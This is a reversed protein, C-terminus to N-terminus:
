RLITVTGQYQRRGDELDITYLYPGPPLEKGNFTGNWACNSDQCEYVKRGGNDFVFIRISEYAILNNFDWTDNIGDGNPTFAQVVAIDPLVRIITLSRQVTNSTTSADSVKISIKRSLKDTVGLFLSRYKVNRLATEYASKSAEGSLTLEGTQKNFSGTIASTEGAPKTYALEDTAAEFSESITVVAGLLNADDVDVITLQTSIASGQDGQSYTIPTTELNRIEPVDNTTSITISVQASNESYLLGDSVNWSFNDPGFYDLPPTYTLQDFASWSIEQNLSIALGNFRLVGQPLQTIKIATVGDGNPDTILPEFFTKPFEIAIDEITEATSATLVPPRNVILNFEQIDFTGAPDSVRIRVLADTSNSPATGSVLAQRNNITSINLWAPADLFQFSLNDSVDPDTAVVTYSYASGFNVRATPTSTIFPPDNVPNVIVTLTKDVFNKSLKGNDQVKITVTTTGNTNLLPQIHVTATTQPSQYDVISQVIGTPNSTTAISIVQGVEGGDTIGTLQFDTIGSDENIMIQSAQLVVTPPSNEYLVRIMFSQETFLGTNDTARIIVPFDINGNEFYVHSLNPSGTLVFGGTGNSTATLWTPLTPATYTIPGGNFDSTTATYTYVTNERATTVATSTFQPPFQGELVTINFFQDARGGKDDVVKIALGSVGINAERPTGTLTATGNGHNTLTLWPPLAIISSITLVDSLDVDSATILYTYLVDQAAVTIPTSTFVPIDQVNNVTVPLTVEVFLGQADTVRVQISGSGYKDHAPVVNLNFGTVSTEQFLTENTVSIIEYLLAAESQELDDVLTSLNLQQGGSDEAMTISPTSLLVPAGNLVYTASANGEYNQENITATIAYTGKVSPVTASGNYLVVVTLGIPNTEVTVPKPAGDVNQLLNTIQVTAAAKNVTLTASGYNFSYNIDDGGSITIPYAGANSNIDALTTAFPAVDLDSVDEGNKFGTFDLPFAPNAQLYIRSANSVTVTLIAKAITLHATNYQFDYNDDSGGSLSITYLGVDSTITAPTSATPLTNLDDENDGNLFGAYLWTFEPDASGYTRGKDEATVTLIAKTVQLQSAVLILTYNNDSGGTLTIPYSGVPSSTTATTSISPQVNIDSADDGNVFGDYDFTLQPNVEFYVKSKPFASVTLDAKDITLTGNTYSLVYNDDSGGGVLITYIGADSTSTAATTVNPQTDLDDKDDGNAFGIYNVNLPPLTGGYTFSVNNAQVLLAAQTVTLQGPQYNFDYLDDDGDQVTIAYTGVSSIESAVSSAVPQVDIEAADDGNLFGTISFTFTPNSQGYARSNDDAEVLLTAKGVTLTFSQLEELFPSGSEQVKLEIFFSGVELPFGNLLATGDAQDILSLGIPLTGSALSITRPSGDADDTIISYEYQTAYTGSLVPSSTFTPATQAKLFGPLAMLLACLSWLRNINKLGVM